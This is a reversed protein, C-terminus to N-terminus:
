LFPCRSLCFSFILHMWSVLVHRGQFAVLSRPPAVGSLLAPLTGLEPCHRQSSPCTGLNVAQPYFALTRNIVSSLKSVHTSYLPPIRVVIDAPLHKQLHAVFNACSSHIQHMKLSHLFPTDPLLEPTAFASVLGVTFAVEWKAVLADQMEYSM